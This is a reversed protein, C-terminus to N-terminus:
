GAAHGDAEIFVDLLQGVFVKLDSRKLSYIVQLVRTDVRELADGALSRKPIVYPEFAVFELPARLRSNGRVSGVAPAGAHVRWADHEDIDVRVHLTQVSGLLLLPNNMAQAAAYEGARVKVQLVEGDIPARVILREMLSQTAKIQAEAYVVRAEAQQVAFRRRALEDKSIARPESQAIALSTDLQSQMDALRSQAILLAGKRVELEARAEREDLQFLVDGRKVAAGVQVAVSTVLGSVSSAISINESSSEVIGVGAVAHPFPSRAPPAVPQAVPPPAANERIVGIGLLLGVVALAPLVHIRHM